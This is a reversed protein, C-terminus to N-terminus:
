IICGVLACVARQSTGPFPILNTSSSALACSFAARWDPLLEARLALFFKRCAVEAIDGRVPLRLLTIRSALFAQATQPTVAPRRQQWRHLNIM